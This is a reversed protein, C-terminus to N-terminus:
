SSRQLVDARIDPFYLRLVEALRLRHEGDHPLDGVIRDLSTLLRQLRVSGSPNILKVYALDALAYHRFPVARCKRQDRSTLM